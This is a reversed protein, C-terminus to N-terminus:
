VHWFPTVPHLINSSCLLLIVLSLSICLSTGLPIKVPKVIFCVVFTDNFSAYIHCVGFVLDGGSQPGYRAVLTPQETAEQFM